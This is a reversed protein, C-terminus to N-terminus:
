RPPAPAPAARASWPTRRAARRTRPHASTEATSPAPTGAAGGRGYRRRPHAASPPRCTHPSPARRSRRGTPRRTRATNPPGPRPRAASRSSATRCRGARGPTRADTAPWPIPARGAPRPPSRRSGRAHVACPRPRTRRPGPRPCHRRYPCARRPRTRRTSLRRLQPLQQAVVVPLESGPVEPDREVAGELLTRRHELEGVVAPIHVRRADLGYPAPQERRALRPVPRPPVVLHDGRPVPQGDGRQGLGARVEVPGVQDFPGRLGGIQQYPQVHVVHPPEGTGGLVAPGPGVRPHQLVVGIDGLPEQREGRHGAFTGPQLEGPQQQVGHEVLEDGLALVARQVVRGVVGLLQDAARLVRRVVGRRGAPRGRYARQQRVRRM